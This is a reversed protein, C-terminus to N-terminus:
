KYIRVPKIYVDSDAGSSQNTSSGDFNWVPLEEISTIKPSDITKTKGRYFSVKLLHLFCFYSVAMPMLKM